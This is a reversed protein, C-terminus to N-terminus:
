EEEKMSIENGRSIIKTCSGDKPEDHYRANWLLVIEDLLCYSPSVSLSRTQIGCVDCKVFADKDCNLIVSAKAGCIPCPKLIKSKEILENVYM